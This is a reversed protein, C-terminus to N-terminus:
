PMVIHRAYRNRQDNSLTRPVVFPYGASKWGSFGAAVSAVNTYGMTRLDRAGLLSRVGGACMVAIPKDRERVYNEVQLELFGRSIHISQQINGQDWEERGRIDILTIEGEDLQERLEHVTIEKIESRLKALLQDSSIYSM